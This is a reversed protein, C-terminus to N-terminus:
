KIFQILAIDVDTFIAVFPNGLITTVGITDFGLRLAVVCYLFLAPVAFPVLRLIVHGKQVKQLSLVIITMAFLNAIINFRGGSPVLSLLNGIALFLLTFNFLSFLSKRSKVLYLSRFYIVSIFSIIVWRLAREYFIAHWSNQQISQSISEAYEENTYGEVRNLLIDPVISTLLENVVTLSIESIFFTGFFIWFYFHVRNKFITHILLIATPLVFSFHVLVSFAAIFFGQKKDEYLYRIAGFFFIHAATWMRFGNIQWFGVILAFTVVFPIVEKRFGAGSNDILYWINRSYFYGFLTGFVLFLIRYDSTFYSVIFTILPQVIDVYSQEGSYLLNSFNDLSIDSQAMRLFDDRYFNADIGESSIVMTYGYFAVFLWVGNKAWSARYNRISLLLSLFPSLAFLCLIFFSNKKEVDTQKLNYSASYNEKQLM